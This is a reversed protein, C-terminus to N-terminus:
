KDLKPIDLATGFEELDIKQANERIEGVINGPALYRIYQLVSAPYSFTQEENGIEKRYLCCAWLCYQFQKIKWSSKARKKQFKVLEILGDGFTKEDFRPCSFLINVFYHQWVSLPINKIVERPEEMAIDESSSKSKRIKGM